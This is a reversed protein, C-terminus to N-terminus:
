DVHYSAGKDSVEMSLVGSDNLTIEYFRHGAKTLLVDKYPVSALLNKFVALSLYFGEREEISPRYGNNLRILMEYIDLTIRLSAKRGDGADYILVLAQSLCELFPHSATEQETRLTFYDGEFLRYSRLTGKEVQRVRLALLNGLRAPDSLGKGRNIAHLIATVDERGKAGPKKIADLFPDISEYPLMEEWREDRREFFHRRRLHSLYNRHKAILRARHKSSYDRPLHAFLTEILNEDYHGREDFNFRSPKHTQPALFGLKGDLEPNSVEAVDIERLLSLLRDNSGERGGLWANFYFGDLIRNQNKEGGNQYLRHIGGCDRTGVLMFALASRLDRMTIHLRGRLHTITYLMKLREIVKRGAVPDQFTKANHYAYCKGKLDCQECAQWYEQQSMRAILRELISPQDEEPEAVASRLNLNIVAIGGDPADGALGQQIQTALLPFADEHEQFFDVLRGENIAILRTQSEPWGSDDDGTFPAFFKQLVTDNREDGEDHSGDYNSQYTHGKLQFVAGNAGRQL